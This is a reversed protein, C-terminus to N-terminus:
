VAETDKHISITNVIVVYQAESWSRKQQRLLGDCASLTMISSDRRGLRRGASSGPGRNVRRQPRVRVAGALADVSVCHAASLAPLRVQVPARVRRAQSSTLSRSSRRSTTARSREVLVPETITANLKFARAKGAASDQSRVVVAGDTQRKPLAALNKDIVLQVGHACQPWDSAVHACYVRRLHLRPPPTLV